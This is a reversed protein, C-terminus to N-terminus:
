FFFIITVCESKWLCPIVIFSCIFYIATGYLQLNLRYYSDTVIILFFFWSRCRIFNDSTSHVILFAISYLCYLYSCFMSELILLWNFLIIKWSIGVQLIQFGFCYTSFTKERGWGWLHRADKKSLPEVNNGNKYKFTCSLIKILKKARRETAAKKTCANRRTRMVVVFREKLSM